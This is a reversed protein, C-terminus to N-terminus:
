LRALRRLGEIALSTLLALTLDGFLLVAFSTVFNFVVGAVVYVRRFSIFRHLSDHSVAFRSGSADVENDSEDPKAEARLFDYQKHYKYYFIQLIKQRFLNTVLGYPVLDNLHLLHGSNAATPENYAATIILQEILEEGLILEILTLWM